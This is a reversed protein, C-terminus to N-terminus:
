KENSNNDSIQESKDLQELNNQEVAMVLVMEGGRVALSSRQYVILGPQASRMIQKIGGFVDTIIGVAENHSLCAGPRLFPEWFGDCDAQLSESTLFDLVLSQQQPTPIGPLCKLHNLLRYLDEKYFHADADDYVGNGGRELLLAPVGHQAAASLSGCDSHSQVTCHIDLCSAAQRAEQQLRRMAIGSYYGHPLLTEHIDGSHLDCYFDISRCLIQDIFAALQEAETGFANGPFIRNINKQDSPVLAPMRSFFAASNILPLLILEGALVQPDLEAALSRVAVIGPYEAGHVGATILIRKGPQQGCILIVPVPREVGPLHVYGQIKEGQKAQLSGLTITRM